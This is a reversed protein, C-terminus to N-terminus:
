RVDEAKTKEGNRFYVGIEKSLSNLEAQLNDLKHQLERRQSDNEIIRHIIEKGDYNKLM